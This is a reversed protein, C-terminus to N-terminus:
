KAGPLISGLISAASLKTFDSGFLHANTVERSFAENPIAPLVPVKILCYTFLHDMEIM